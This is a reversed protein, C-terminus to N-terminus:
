INSIRRKCRALITGVLHGSKTSEQWENIDFATLPEATSLRGLEIRLSLNHAPETM